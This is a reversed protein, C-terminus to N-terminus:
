EIVILPQNSDVENGVSVLIEKVTGSKSTQVESEMKMAEIIAVVDGSSVVDGVSVPLKFVKGQLPSNITDAGASAAKPASATAEVSGETESVKELEVEYVKGNVKVKYIKM